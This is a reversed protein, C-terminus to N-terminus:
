PRSYIESIMYGSNILHAVYQDYCDDKALEYKERTSYVVNKEDGYIHLNVLVDGNLKFNHEVEYSTGVLTTLFFLKHSDQPPGRAVSMALLRPYDMQGTLCHLQYEEPFLTMEEVSMLEQTSGFVRGSASSPVYVQPPKPLLPECVGYRLDMAEKSCQLGHSSSETDHDYSSHNLQLSQIIAIAGTLELDIIKDHRNCSASESAM